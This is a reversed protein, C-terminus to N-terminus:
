RNRWLKGIIWGLLLKVPFRQVNRFLVKRFKTSEVGQKLSEFIPQANGYNEPAIMKLRDVASSIYTKLELYSDEIKEDPLEILFYDSILTGEVQFFLISPNKAVEDLEFYGKLMPLLPKISTQNEVPYLGRQERDSITALDSAFTKEHSHVYYVSLYRGAIADLANWYDKDDLIMFIQPNEFDYLIFAFALARGEEKHKMCVDIITENFDAASLECILGDRLLKLPVITIAGRPKNGQTALM